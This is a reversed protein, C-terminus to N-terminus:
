WYTSYSSYFPALPGFAHLGRFVRLGEPIELRKVNEGRVEFLVLDGNEEGTVYITGDRLLLVQSLGIDNAADPIERCFWEGDSRVAFHAELNSGIVVVDEGAVAFKQAYINECGAPLEVPLWYGSEYELFEHGDLIGWGHNTSTPQIQIFSRLQYNPPMDYITWPETQTADYEVLKGHTLPVAKDRASAIGFQEDVFGLSEYYIPVGVFSILDSQHGVNELLRFQWDYCVAIYFVHDLGVPVIHTINSLVPAGLNVDHWAGDKEIAKWDHGQPHYNGTINCNYAAWIKEGNYAATADIFRQDCNLCCDPKPIYRAIWGDDTLHWSYYVGDGVHGIVVLQTPEIPATDDDATDDDSSDDDDILDDDDDDDIVDNDNNDDDGVDDDDDSSDDDEDDDCAPFFCVFLILLLGTLLWATRSSLL